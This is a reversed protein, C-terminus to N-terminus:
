VVRSYKLILIIGAITLCGGCGALVLSPQFYNMAMGFISFSVPLSVNAIVTSLSFVRGAKEDPVHAQLLSRWYVSAVAAATGIFILVAIYPFVVAVGLRFIAGMLTFCVGAALVAIFLSSGRVGKERRHTFIAGLIMGAGLATEMYGLNQVGAGALGKAIFPLAVAISGFFIHVVGIVLLIVLVPKSGSIFKVGERIDEWLGAKKDRAPAPPLTIFWELFASALYSLGNALFVTGYGFISVSAAGAVPGAVSALGAIMQSLSNARTIEDKEVLRPIVAMVAPNFFASSLSLMIASVFVHWVELWGAMFLFAVALVALGRVIDAMIIIAKRNWRDIFGGAVIGMLLEPLMAAALFLGMVAPSGTKELVWWALAIDYFKDGLQSVLQGTWLLFFNRNIWMM